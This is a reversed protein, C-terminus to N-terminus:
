AVASKYLYACTPMLIKDAFKLGGEVLIGKESVPERRTTIKAQGGAKEFSYGFSPSVMSGFPAKYFLTVHKGWVSGIAETQGPLSTVKRAKPVIVENFGHKDKIINIIDSDGIAVAANTFAKNYDPHQKLEVLVARPITITNPEFGTANFVTTKADEIDNFPTSNTYDSWQSTGSLTSTQTIVSANTMVAAISDEAQLLLTEQKTMAEIAALQFPSQQNELLIDDVYGAIDFHKIQYTLQSAVKSEVFHLSRDGVTRELDYIRMHENGWQPIIGSDEKVIVKPLIKDRVLNDRNTQGLLTNLFANVQVDSVTIKSM